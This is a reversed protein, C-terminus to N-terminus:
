PISMVCSAGMAFAISLGDSCHIVKQIILVNPGNDWGLNFVLFNNVIVRQSEAGVNRMIKSPVISMKGTGDPGLHPSMRIFRLVKQLPAFSHNPPFM